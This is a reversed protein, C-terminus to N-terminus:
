ETACQYGGMRIDCLWLVASSLSLLSDTCMFLIIKWFITLFVFHHSFSVPSFFHYLTLLPNPPESVINSSSYIYNKGRHLPCVSSVHKKKKERKNLLLM